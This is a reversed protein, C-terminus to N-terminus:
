GPGGAGESGGLSPGPSFLWARGGNDGPGHRNGGCARNSTPPTRAKSGGHRAAIGCSRTSSPARSGDELDGIQPGGLQCGVTVPFLRCLKGLEENERRGAWVRHPLPPRPLPVRIVTVPIASVRPFPPIRTRAPHSGARPVCSGGQQHWCPVGAAKTVAKDAQAQECGWADGSIWPSVPNTIFRRGQDAM